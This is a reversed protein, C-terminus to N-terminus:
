STLVVSYDKGGDASIVGTPSLLEPTLQNSTKGDGLQGANDYGWGYLRGTSTVAFSHDRGTGVGVITVTTPIGKVLAPKLGVKTTGQGLQGRSNTGWDMVTGNSLLALSHDAGAMVETAGAVGISQVPTTRDTKSGDGLEGSGNEGWAWVTGGAQIAIGHDRGATIDVAHTLHTSDVRVPTTHTATSGNGLEGSSGLGWAWVTGDSKRALAFDRGGAVQVVGTLGSVTVPTLRTTTTGDGLQGTANWGWARVTGDSLLAYSSYHGAAVQVVTATSNPPVVGPVAFPTHQDAKKPNGIQDKSDDGWTWVQGNGDLAIVAEREGDLQVINSLPPTTGAFAKRPTTTGDGLEGDANAGATVVTGSTVQPEVPGAAAIAGPATLGLLSATVAASAAIWRTRTM